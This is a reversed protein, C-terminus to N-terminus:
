DFKIRVSFDDALEAAFFLHWRFHIRKEVRHKLQQGVAVDHERVPLAVTWTETLRSNL